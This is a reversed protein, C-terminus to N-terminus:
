LPTTELKPEVAKRLIWDIVGSAPLKAKVHYSLQDTGGLKASSIQGAGPYLLLADSHESAWVSRSCTHYLSGTVVAFVLFVIASRRSIM